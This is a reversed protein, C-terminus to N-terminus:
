ITSDDVFETFVPLHYCCVLITIENFTEGENNTKEKFPRFYVIYIIM